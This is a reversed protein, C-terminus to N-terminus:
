SLNVTVSFLFIKENYFLFGKQVQSVNRQFIVLMFIQSLPENVRLDSKANPRHILFDAM